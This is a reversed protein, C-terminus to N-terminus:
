IVLANSIQRTTTPWLRLQFAWNEILDLADKNADLLALEERGRQAADYSQAGDKAGTKFLPGDAIARWHARDNSVGLHEGAAALAMEPNELFKRFDLSRVHDSTAAENFIEMQHRWVLATIQLDTLALADRQPIAAVGAKDMAYVRYIQRILTKCPDGKKIVSALFGRLDGHLLIAPLGMGAMTPILNNAANTPKIIVREDNDFGRAVFRLIADRLQSTQRLEADNQAM